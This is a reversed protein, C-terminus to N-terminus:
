GGGGDWMGGVEFPKPSVTWGAYSGELTKSHLHSTSERALKRARHLLNWSFVPDVSKRWSLHYLARSDTRATMSAWDWGVKSGEVPRKWRLSYMKWRRVLEPVSVMPKFPTPLGMALPVPRMRLAKRGLSSTVMRGNRIGELAKRTTSSLRVAWIRLIALPLFDRALSSRERAWVMSSPIQFYPTM